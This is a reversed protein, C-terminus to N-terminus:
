HTIQQMKNISVKNSPIGLATSVANIVSEQVDSNEAGDCVVVVGLINPQVQKTLLANQGGTANSVIVHSSESSNNQQTQGNADGGNQTKDTTIKDDKEYINEVGSEVTVMVKVRGVGNIRGIIDELRSQTRGEFSNTGDGSYQTQQASGASTGSSANPTHFFDSLFILAIGIFGVILLITTVKKGSFKGLKEKLDFLGKSEMM